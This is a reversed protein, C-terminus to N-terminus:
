DAVGAHSWFDQMDELFRASRELNSLETPQVSVSVLKRERELTRRALKYKKEFDDAEWIQVTELGSTLIKAVTDGLTYDLESVMKGPTISGIFQSHWSREGVGNSWLDHWASGEINVACSAEDENPDLYVHLSRQAGKSEWGLTRDPADWHWKSVRLGHTEAFKAIAPDILRFIGHWFAGQDDWRAWFEKSEVSM